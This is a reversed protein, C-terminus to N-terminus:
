AVASPERSRVLDLSEANKGFALIARTDTPAHPLGWESEGIVTYFPFVRRIPDIYTSALNGDLRHTELVLLERTVQAIVDMIPGVYIFVSFALVIDYSESYISPDTIDREFFSVRTTSNFANVANAMEVFFPDYEYGDVLRAGRRRASRSLEGLNSGLDLVSRSEFDISDLIGERDSRFGITETDGLRISQYHNGTQIGDQCSESIYPEHLARVITDHLEQTITPRTM